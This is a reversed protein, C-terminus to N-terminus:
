AARTGQSPHRKMAQGLEVEDVPEDPEDLRRLFLCLPVAVVATATLWLAFAIPVM